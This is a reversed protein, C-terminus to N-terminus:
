FSKTWKLGVYMPVSSLLLLCGYFVTTQGAGIIAWFAYLGALVAIIAAARLSYKGQRFKEPYKFLLVLLAMATFFYPLLSALTALLVIFSFQSVLSQNVKLLLLGTILLSSILLGAIPVGQRTEKLFIDPFLKDQAAVLPVQAQLLVWGTLAGLCSIVALGAIWASAATGLVPRMADAYPATSHVLQSFPIMGVVAIYSLIYLIAAISVGLITARPINQTPNKIHGAPISASELGLFAWLTLTAAGSFALLSPEGSLNFETLHHPQFFFFGLLIVALLPLLKLATLATQLITSARPSVINLLTLLWIVGVNVGCALVADQALAPWFFSLYGTLAVVLAANGVWVAIWYHYAMQFGAFDGFAERCYAYAGGGRPLVAGLRAFVLALLLAGVATFIWALLSISGYHALSAPLLFIGSGIMNGAVLATLQWLGLRAVRTVESM